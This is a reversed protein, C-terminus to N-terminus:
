DPEKFMVDLKFEATEMAESLMPKATETGDAAKAGEGALGLTVLISGLIQTLIKQM